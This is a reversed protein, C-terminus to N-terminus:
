KAGEKERWEKVRTVREETAAGVKPEGSKTPVKWITRVGVGGIASM